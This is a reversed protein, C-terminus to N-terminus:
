MNVVGCALNKNAAFLYLKGRNLITQKILQGSISAPNHSMALKQRIHLSRLVSFGAFIELNVDLPQSPLNLLGWGVGLEDESPPAHAVTKGPGTLLSLRGM